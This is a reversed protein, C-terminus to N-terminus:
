QPDGHLRCHKRYLPHRNCKVVFRSSDRWHRQSAEKRHGRWPSQRCRRQRKRLPYSPIDPSDGCRLAQLPLPHNYRSEDPFSFSPFARATKGAHKLRDHGREELLLSVPRHRLRCEFLDHPPPNQSHGPASEHPFACGYGPLSRRM